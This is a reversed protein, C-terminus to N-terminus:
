HLIGSAPFLKLEQAWFFAWTYHLQAYHALHLMFDPFLSKSQKLLYSVFM